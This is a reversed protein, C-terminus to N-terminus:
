KRERVYKTARRLQEEAECVYGAFHGGGAEINNSVAGIDFQDRKGDISSWARALDTVTVGAAFAERILRAHLEKETEAM